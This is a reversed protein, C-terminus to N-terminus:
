VQLEADPSAEYAPREAQQATIDYLSTLLAESWQGEWQM